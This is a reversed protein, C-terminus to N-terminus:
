TKEKTELTGCKASYQLFHEIKEQKKRIGELWAAQDGKFLEANEATLMLYTATFDNVEGILREVNTKEQGPQVENAGFRLIKTARQAIECCEEALITLLHENRTM